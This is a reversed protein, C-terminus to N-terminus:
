KKKKQLKTPKYGKFSKLYSKPSGSGSFGVKKDLVRGNSDLLFVTPYGKIPYKKVIEMAAKKDTAAQPRKRPFDAKLLVMTSALAAFERDSFIKRELAMCPPCWDSGTALLLIQKNGRKADRLASPLDKHWKVISPAVTREQKKEQKKEQRKKKILRDKQSEANIDAATFFLSAAFLALLIKKM